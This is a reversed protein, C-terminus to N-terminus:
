AVIGRTFRWVYAGGVEESMDGKAMEELQADVAADKAGHKRAHGVGSM